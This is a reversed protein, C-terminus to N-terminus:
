SSRLDKNKPPWLIFPSTTEVYKHYDPRSKHLGKELLVVGSVRLLLFTLLAPGVLTWYAEGGVAILYIGWWLIAEGFYNPHRSYRWFGTDLVIGINSPNKRFRALQVDSVSEIILGAFFILSGILDWHGLPSSSTVSGLLPMSIMWLLVGQLLFVTFLSVWLFREGHHERMKRYRPDEGEHRKRIFLHCSLRFAWITILAIVLSSRGTHLGGTIYYVFTILVFGLGWFSDVISADEVRVSVLWLITMALLVVALGSLGAHILPDYM